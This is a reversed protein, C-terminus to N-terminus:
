RRGWRFMGTRSIWHKAIGVAEAICLPTRTVEPGNRASNECVHIPIAIRDIRAPRGDRPASRPVASTLATTVREIARMTPPQDILGPPAHRKQEPRKNRSGSSWRVRRM